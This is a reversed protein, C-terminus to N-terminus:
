GPVFTRWGESGLAQLPAFRTKYAMKPSEAIWYGLYVFPLARRQAERILWLVMYNGLSRRAEDPEFFSYVASPGDALWDVLCGAVVAGETLRFEVVGSAVPTHEIMGRYDAYAMGAMEGDGHRSVVYRRFLQFQELTAEAPQARVKLDANRRELRRLSRSPRFEAAAVRVPVCATCDRCAPRYAFNHSRRFGARSLLSYGTGPDTGGLETIVKRERRGPLYPCPTEGLVYYVQPPLRTAEAGRSPAIPAPGERM